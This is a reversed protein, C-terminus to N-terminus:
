GEPYIEGFIRASESQQDELDEETEDDDSDMCIYTLGYEHGGLTVPGLASNNQEPDADLVHIELDAETTLIRLTGDPQRIILVTNQIQNTM